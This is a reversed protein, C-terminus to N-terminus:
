AADLPMPPGGAIAEFQKRADEAGNLVEDTFDIWAKWLKEDM